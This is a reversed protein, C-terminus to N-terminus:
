ILRIWQSCFCLKTMASSTLFHGSYLWLATITSFRRAPRVTGLIIFTRRNGSISPKRCQGDSCSKRLTRLLNKYPWKCNTCFQVRRYCSCTKSELIQLLFNQSGLPGSKDAPNNRTSRSQAVLSSIRVNRRQFDSNLRQERTHLIKQCFCARVEPVSNFRDDFYLLM